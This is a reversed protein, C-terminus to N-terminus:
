TSPTVFFQRKEVLAERYQLFTCSVAMTVVSSSYSSTRSGSFPAMKLSRSRSRSRVWIEIDRWYEVSFIDNVALRCSLSM